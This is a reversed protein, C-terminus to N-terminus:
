SPQQRRKVLNEVAELCALEDRLSSAVRIARMLSAQIDRSVLEHGIARLLDAVGLLVRLHEHLAVVARNAAALEALVLDPEM